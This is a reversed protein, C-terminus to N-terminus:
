LAQLLRFSAMSGEFHFPCIPCESIQRFLLFFIRISLKSSGHLWMVWPLLTSSPSTSAIHPRKASLVNLAISVCRLLWDFVECFLFVIELHNVLSSIERPLFLANVICLDRLFANLTSSWTRWLYWHISIFDSGLFHYGKSRTGRMTQKRSWLCSKSLICGSVYDVNDTLSLSSLWPIHKMRIALLSFDVFYVLKISFFEIFDLFIIIIVIIVKFPLFLLCILLSFGLHIKKLLSCWSAENRSWMISWNTSFAVERNPRLKWHLICYGFIWLSSLHRWLRTKWAIVIGTVDFGSFHSLNHSNVILIFPSRSNHFLGGKHLCLFRRSDWSSCALFLTSFCNVIRWAIVCCLACPWLGTLSIDNHFLFFKFRNLDNRRVKGWLM